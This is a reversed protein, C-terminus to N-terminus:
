ELGANKLAHMINTDYIPINFQRPAAAGSPRPHMDKLDPLLFHM